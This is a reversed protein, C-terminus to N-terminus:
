SSAPLTQSNFYFPLQLSGITQDEHKGRGSLSVFVIAEYDYMYVPNKGTVCM